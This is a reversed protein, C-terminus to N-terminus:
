CYKKLIELYKFENVTDPELYTGEAWENWANIFVYQNHTDNKEKVIEVKAKVFQEFEKESPETIITSRTSKRPSNDWGCFLGGFTNQPNDESLRISKEAISSFLKIRNEIRHKKTIKNVLGLIERHIRASWLELSSITNLSRAPEFEVSANFLEVNRSVNKDRLTDVLYIGDYGYERALENWCNVMEAFRPISASKYIVLMPMNNIKIYREDNFYELFYLFHKKWDAEDGYNQAILIDNNKGDWTRAWPENAWSFCFKIDIDKTEHLLDVPKELLLKGGFWYHYFCFGYVGYKKALLAQNRIDEIKSLDYYNRKLPVRPQRHGSFLPKAKKVNIWDTFGKGWWENNEKIEHFQPLYFAIFKM